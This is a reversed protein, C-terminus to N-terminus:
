TEKKQQSESVKRFKLISGLGVSTKLKGSSSPIRPSSTPLPKSKKSRNRRKPSNKKKPEEIVCENSTIFQSFLNGTSTGEEFENLLDQQNSNTPKIEEICMHTSVFPPKMLRVRVIHFNTRFQQITLDGGFLRLRISPPAPKVASHIDFVNRLMHHFYLMRRSTLFPEREILYTKACNASCFIGYVSYLNTDIYYDNVVPIPTTDFTHVCHWCACGDPPQEPWDPEKLCPHLLRPLHEVNQNLKHRVYTACDTIRTVIRLDRNLYCEEDTIFISSSDQQKQQQQQQM